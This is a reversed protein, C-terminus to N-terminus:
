LISAHRHPVDRSFVALPEARAVRAEHDVITDVIEILQELLQTRRTHWDELSGLRVLVALKRPDHVRVFVLDLQPFRSAAGAPATIATQCTSNAITGRRASAAFGLTPAVCIM